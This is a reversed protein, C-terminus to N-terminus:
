KAVEEKKRSAISKQVAIFIGALMGFTMFAGVASTFVPIAFDAPFVQLGMIAGTGLLERFFAIVILSLMFGLGMGVGDIASKFITNKSAFAEARGLIICNVTILPIFVKMSNYLELTYAQMFMQLLTVLSAIVVIYVPIRIEDMVIKRILSIIVNSMLLVFIVGIGMGIANTVSSTVGLTPCLGLFLVFIPNERIIGASFINFLENSKKM